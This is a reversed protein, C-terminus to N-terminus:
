YNLNKLAPRRFLETYISEFSLNFWDLSAKTYLTNWFSGSLSQSKEDLSKNNM